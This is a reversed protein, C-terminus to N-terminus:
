AVLKEWHLESYAFPILKLFQKAAFIFVTRSSNEYIYNYCAGVWHSSAELLRNEHDTAVRSHLSGIKSFALNPDRIILITRDKGRERGIEKAVIAGCAWIAKMSSRPVISMPLRTTSSKILLQTSFLLRAPKAMLPSYSTM